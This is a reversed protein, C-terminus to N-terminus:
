GIPCPPLPLFPIYRVSVGGPCDGLPFSGWWFLCALSFAVVARGVSMAALYYRERGSQHSFVPPILFVVILPSAISTSVASTWFWAAPSILYWWTWHSFLLLFGNLGGVASLASALLCIMALPIYWSLNWRM